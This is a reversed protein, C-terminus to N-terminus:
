RARNPAPDGCFSATVNRTEGRRAVRRRSLWAAEILSIEADTYTHPAYHLDILVPKVIIPAPVPAPIPLPRSVPRQAPLRKSRRIWQWTM